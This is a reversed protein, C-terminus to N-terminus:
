KRNQIFLTPMNLVITDIMNHGKANVTNTKPANIYISNVKIKLGVWNYGTAFM